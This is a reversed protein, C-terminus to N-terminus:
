RSCRATTTETALSGSEPTFLVRVRRKGSKCGGRSEFFGKGKRTLLKIKSDVHVVANSIGAGGPHTLSDPVSFDLSSEGGSRNIFKAPIASALQIACKRRPDTQNPDGAVYISARMGGHNVVNLAANCQISKDAPNNTAGTANEIFGSGVLSKSPCGSPGERELTAAKCVPASSPNVRIGAFRISYKKIVAPRNNNQEGVSYSFTLSIPVPKKSSGAKTPNTSAEVEYTNVQAVQAYAFAALSLALIATLAIVMKRM